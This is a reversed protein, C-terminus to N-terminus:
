ATNGCLVFNKRPGKKLKRFSKTARRRKTRHYHFVKKQRAAIDNREIPVLGCMSGVYTASTAVNIFCDVRKKRSLLPVRLPRMVGTVAFYRWGGGRRVLRM